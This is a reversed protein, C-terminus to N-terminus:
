TIQSHPRATNYDARRLAIAARAQALWTFLTENLLEDRLAACDGIPRIETNPAAINGALCFAAASSGHACPTFSM